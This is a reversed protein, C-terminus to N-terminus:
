AELDEAARQGQPYLYDVIDHWQEFLRAHPKQPDDEDWGMEKYLDGAEGAEERFTAFERLLSPPLHMLVDAGTPPGINELAKQIEELAHTLRGYIYPQSPVRM